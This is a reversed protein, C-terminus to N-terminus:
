RRLVAFERFEPTLDALKHVEAFPSRFVAPQFGLLVLEQQRNVAQRGVHFRRNPFQSRAKEKLVVARYFQHVPEFRM